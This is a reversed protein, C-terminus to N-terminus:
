GNVTGRFSTRRAEDTTIETIRYPDEGPGHNPKYPREWDRPSGPEDEHGTTLAFDEMREHLDVDGLRDFLWRRWSAENYTAPPVPFLHNVNMVQRPDYTNTGARTVILTLGRSEGTHRGPKDRQYDMVLYVAWGLHQRYRLRRVLDALIEPYPSVQVVQESM